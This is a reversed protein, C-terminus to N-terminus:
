LKFPKDVCIYHLRLGHDVAAVAPGRGGDGNDDEDTTTDHPNPTMPEYDRSGDDNRNDEGDGNRTNDECDDERSNNDERSDPTTTAITKVTATTPTM